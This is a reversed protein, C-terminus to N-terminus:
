PKPPKLRPVPKLYTPPKKEQLPKENPTLKHIPPKYVPQTHIPPKYHESSALPQGPPWPKEVHAPKKELLPDEDTPAPPKCQFLTPITLVVVGLFLLLLPSSVM